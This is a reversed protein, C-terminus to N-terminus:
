RTRAVLVSLGATTGEACITIIRFLVSTVAAAPVPMMTSLLVTMLGERAGIGAPAIPVALGFLYSIAVIGSTAPLVDWPLDSTVTHATAFLAVSMTSWQVVYGVLLLLIVRYPPLATWLPGTQSPLMRSALRLLPGLVRPHLCVLGIPLALLSIWTLFELHETPALQRLLIPISIVSLLAAGLLSLALEVLVSTVGLAPPQGHQQLAVVRGAAHMVKGPLYKFMNTVLFIRFGDRTGVRGGLNRYIVLWPYAVATAVVLMIGYAVAIPLPSFRWEFNALKPDNWSLWLAYGVAGVLLLGILLRLVPHRFM